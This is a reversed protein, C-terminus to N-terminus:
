QHLEGCDAQVYFDYNTNSSLGTLSYTTTTASDTTGTGQTFGEAGYEINWATETAGATWSFDASNSTSNTMALDAPTLCSPPSTVVIEFSAELEVEPTEWSGNSDNTNTDSPSTGGNNGLIVGYSTM